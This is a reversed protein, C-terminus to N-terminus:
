VQLSVTSVLAESFRQPSVSGRSFHLPLADRITAKIEQLFMVTFRFVFIFM